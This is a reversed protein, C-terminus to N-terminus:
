SVLGLKRRCANLLQQGARVEKGTVEIVRVLNTASEELMADAQVKDADADTHSEIRLAERVNPQRVEKSAYRSHMYNVFFFAIKEVDEEPAEADILADIMECVPRHPKYKGFIAQYFIWARRGGPAKKLNRKAKSVASQFCADSKDRGIAKNVLFEADTTTAGHM